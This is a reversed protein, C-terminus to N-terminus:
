DHFHFKSIKVEQVLYTCFQHEFHTQLEEFYVLLMHTSGIM